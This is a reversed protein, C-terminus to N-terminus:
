QRTELFYRAVERTTKELNDLANRFSNGMYFSRKEGRKNTCHGYIEYDAMCHGHIEYDADWYGYIESDAYCNCFNTCSKSPRLEIHGYFWQRKLQNYKSIERHHNRM